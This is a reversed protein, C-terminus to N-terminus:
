RRSDATFFAQFARSSRHHMIPDSIWDAPAPFASAQPSARERNWIGYQPALPAFPVSFLEKGLLQAGRRLLMVMKIAGEERNDVNTIDLNEVNM